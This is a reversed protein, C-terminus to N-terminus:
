AGAGEKDKNYSKAIVLLIVSAFLLHLGGVELRTVKEGLVVIGLFTAAIPEALGLTAAVVSGTQKMGEMFLAFAMGLSVIGIGLCITIGHVTFIWDVPYIFFVPLLVISALGMILMMMPKPQMSEMVKPTFSLLIAYSLGALLPFIGYVLSMDQFNDGNIHIIGIIALATAIYWILSPNKGYLFKAIIATWLPTVGIAVVTGAAVGVKQVSFFFLPQYALIACTCIAIYKWPLEKWNKPIENQFFSVLLLTLSGVIMRAEAIVWPNAGEPALAQFTGTTGFCLAGLLVLISGKFNTM